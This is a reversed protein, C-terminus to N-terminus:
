RLGEGCLALHARNTKEAVVMMKFKGTAADKADPKM